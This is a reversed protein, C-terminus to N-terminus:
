SYNSYRGSYSGDTTERLCCTYLPSSLVLLSFVADKHSDFVLTCHDLQHTHINHEVLLQTGACHTHSDMVIFDLQRQSRSYDLEVVYVKSELCM